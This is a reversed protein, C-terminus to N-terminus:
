VKNISSHKYEWELWWRQNTHTDKCLPCTVLDINHTKRAHYSGNLCRVQLTDRFPRFHILEDAM